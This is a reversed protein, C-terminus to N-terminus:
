TQEPQKFRSMLREVVAESEAVLSDIRNRFIAVFFLAPIAVTLGFCTTTLAGSIGWALDSPNAKGGKSAIQNFADMMGTVTGLLGLMPATAAIFSLYSLKRNLRGVYRESVEQIATQMDFFGFMAGVQALGAGVAQGLLSDSEECMKRAQAYQKADLQKQLDNVLDPPVLKNSNISLFHEVVLAVMVVSMLLILWGIRGGSTVVGWISVSEQGSQAPIELDDEAEEQAQLYGAFWVLAILVLLVLVITAKNSMTEEKWIEM